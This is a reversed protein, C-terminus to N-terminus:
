TQREERSTDQRSSCLERDKRGGQIRDAAAYSGREGGQNYGTQLQMARQREVMSTDESCSGLQGDRYGTQRHIAGQREKM